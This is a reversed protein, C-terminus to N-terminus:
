MVIKEAEWIFCMMLLNVQQIYTSQQPKQHQSQVAPPPPTPAPSPTPTPNGSQSTGCRGTLSKTYGREKKFNNVAQAPLFLSCISDQRLM